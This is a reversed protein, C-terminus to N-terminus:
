SVNISGPRQHKIDFNTLNYPHFISESTICDELTDSGLLGFVYLGYMLAVSGPIISFAELIGFKFRLKVM